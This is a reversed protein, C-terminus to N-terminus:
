EMTHKLVIPVGVQAAKTAAAEQWSKHTDSLGNKLHEIVNKGTQFPMVNGYVGLGMQGVTNVGSVIGKTVGKPVDGLHSWVSTDWVKEPADKSYGSFPRLPLVSPMETM